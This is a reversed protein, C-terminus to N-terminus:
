RWGWDQTIHRMEEDFRDDIEKLMTISDEGTSMCRAEVTAQLDGRTFEEYHNVLDRIFLERSPDHKPLRHKSAETIDHLLKMIGNDIEYYKHIEMNNLLSM